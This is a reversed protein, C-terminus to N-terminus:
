NDHLTIKYPGDNTSQQSVIGDQQCEEIFEGYINGKDIGTSNVKKLLFFCGLGLYPITSRGNILSAESCDGIPVKLVRRGIVGLPPQNDFQSDSVEQQYDQWNFDLETTQGGTCTGEELNIVTTISTTVVDPPFQDSLKSMPGLYEGFRTNLGQISPGITNGPKTNIGGGFDVCGAYNGALVERIENAGSNGSGFSVLQFNGSGLCSESLNSAKLLQVAGPIYGWYSDGNTSPTKDPNGCLMVAAPDCVIPSFTGSPGATSTASMPINSFGLLQIFWSQLTMSRVKVRVYRPNNGGSVFPSLTDSYTISLDDFTLNDQLEGNGQSNINLSFLNSIENSAQNTSRSDNLTKAGSLVLADTLSQLRTKNLYAHGFDIALGIISLLVTMGVLLMIVVMGQHKYREHYHRNM